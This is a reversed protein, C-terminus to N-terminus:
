KDVFVGSLQQWGSFVSVKELLSQPKNPAKTLRKLDSGFGRPPRKLPKPVQDNEEQQILQVTEFVLENAQNKYIDLERLPILCRSVEQAIDRSNIFNVPVVAILPGTNKAVMPANNAVPSKYQYALVGGTPPGWYTNKRKAPLLEEILTDTELVTLGIGVQFQLSFFGKEGPPVTLNDTLRFVLPRDPYVPLYALTIQKSQRGLLFSKEVIENEPEGTTERKYYLQGDKLNLQLEGLPTSIIKTEEKKLTIRDGLEM